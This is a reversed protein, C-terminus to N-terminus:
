KTWEADDGVPGPMVEGDPAGDVLYDGLQKELELKGDEAPLEKPPMGEEAPLEESVDFQPLIIIEPLRHRTPPPPDRRDTGDEWPELDSGQAVATPHTLGECRLAAEECFAATEEPTPEPKPERGWGMWVALGAAAMSGLLVAVTTRSSMPGESM